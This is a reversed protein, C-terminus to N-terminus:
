ELSDKLYKTSIYKLENLKDNAYSYDIDINCNRPTLEDFNILRNELGLLLLLSELRSEGRVKNRICYFNKNFIISFCVCHFSDTIVLKSNKIKQLWSPVSIYSNLWLKSETYYINEYSYGLEDSIYKIKNKFADDIDLKYYVLESNNETTQNSSIIEDFFEKDSLLTPDLVHQSKVNFITNCINFGSDERVSIAYFDKLSQAINSTLKQNDLLEWEDVGFSAAYSIKRIENSIGSLFYVQIDSNFNPYMKPRWVQDSGVVISDYEFAANNFSEATFYYNKSRTIWNIRFDEFVTRNLRFDYFRSKNLITKLIHGIFGRKIKNKLNNPDYPMYNIHEVSYGLKAIKNELAAAQLVAGYNHDSFQFNLIGIKKSKM